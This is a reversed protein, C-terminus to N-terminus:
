EQNIIHRPRWLWLKCYVIILMACSTQMCTQLKLRRDNVVMEFGGVLCMGCHHRPVKKYFSVSPPLFVVIESCGLVMHGLDCKLWLQPEDRVVASAVESGGPARVRSASKHFNEQRESKPRACLSCMM